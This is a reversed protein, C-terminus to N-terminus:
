TSDEGEEKGSAEWTVEVTAYGIVSISGMLCKHRRTDVTHKIRKCEDM